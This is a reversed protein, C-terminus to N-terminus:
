KGKLTTLQTSRQPISDSASWGASKRLSRSELFEAALSIQHVHHPPQPQCRYGCDDANRGPGFRACGQVDLETWSLGHEDMGKLISADVIQKRRCSKM